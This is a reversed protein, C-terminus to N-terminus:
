VDPGSYNEGLISFTMALSFLINQPVSSIRCFTRVRDAPAVGPCPPNILTGLTILSEIRAGVEGAGSATQSESSLHPSLIFSIM